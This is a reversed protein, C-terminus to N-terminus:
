FSRLHAIKAEIMGERKELDEIMGDPVVPYDFLVIIAPIGYKKMNEEPSLGTATMVEPAATPTPSVSPQDCSTLLLTLAM